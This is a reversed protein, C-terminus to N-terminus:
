SHITEVWFTEDGLLAYFQRAQNVWVFQWCFQSPIVSGVVLYVIFLIRPVLVYYDGPMPLCVVSDDVILARRRPPPFDTPTRAQHSCQYSTLLLFYV